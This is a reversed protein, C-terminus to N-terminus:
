RGRRGRGAGPPTAARSRSSTSRSTTAGAAPGKTVWLLCRGTPRRATTWLAAHRAQRRRQVAGALRRPAGLARRDRRAAADRADTAYVEVRFGPTSTTLELTACATRSASTSSYAPASEAARRRSRSRRRRAQRRARTAARTAPATARAAGPRVRGPAPPPLKSRSPRAAADLDRQRAAAHRRVRDGADAADRADVTPPAPAPPVPTAPTTPAPTTPAAGPGDAADAAPPTASSPPTPRRPRPRVPSADPPPPAPPRRRRRREHARRLGRRRRRRRARADAGAGDRGRALGPAARPPRARRDGCSLCWDQDAAMAPAAPERVASRPAEAADVPAGDPPARAGAAGAHARGRAAERTGWPRLARRPAEVPSRPEPRLPELACRRARQGRTGDVADVIRARAEGDPVSFLAFRELVRVDRVAEGDLGPRTPSRTSSTPSRWATPGGAAPSSRRTAARRRQALAHPKTHRRPSEEVQRRRPTRARPEVARDGHRHPQEIAELERKQRPEVFTIARGSRGVRGTRGIRHVYVDPRPRSTSTSSTRSRRSTWGAPPSTPPSSSRCAAARSRRADRRRAPGPDHRRAARKVNMGRDRLKRFLQDCRIKTRVFVIAQDPREARWCRSSSDRGQGEARGRAPVARRHRGDADRVQGEDHVPDYLYRDALKRIPPPM